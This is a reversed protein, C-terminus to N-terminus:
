HGADSGGADTSAAVCVQLASFQNGCTTTAMACYTADPVTAQCNTAATLQTSCGSSTYLTCDSACNSTRMCLTNDRNCGTMCQQMLSPTSSTSCAGLMLALGLFSMTAVNKM